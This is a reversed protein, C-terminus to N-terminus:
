EKVGLEKIKEIKCSEKDYTVEFVRKKYFFFFYFKEPGVIIGVLNGKEKLEEYDM